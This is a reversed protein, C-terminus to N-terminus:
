FIVNIYVNDLVDTWTVDAKSNDKESYLRMIDEDSTEYRYEPNYYNKNLQSVPPSVEADLKAQVFNSKDLYNSFRQQPKTIRTSLLTRGIRSIM